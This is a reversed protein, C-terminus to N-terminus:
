TSYTADVVPAPAPLARQALGQQARDIRELEAAAQRQAPTAVAAAAAIAKRMPHEGPLLPALEGFRQESDKLSVYAETFERLAFAVDREGLHLMRAEGGISQFARAAATGHERQIRAVDYFHGRPTYEPSRLIATFIRGADVREPPRPSARDIIDQISPWFQLHRITLKVGAIYADDDLEATLQEYYTASLEPSMERNWREALLAVGEAFVEPTIPM